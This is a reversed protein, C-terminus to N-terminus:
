IGFPKRGAALAKTMAELFRGYAIEVSEQSNDPIIVSYVAPRSGIKGPITMVVQLKQEGPLPSEHYEALTWQESIELVTGYTRLILASLADKNTSSSM